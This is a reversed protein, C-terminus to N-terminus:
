LHYSSCFLHTKLSTKFNSLTKSHRVYSPLSNWLSPAYVSFSRDGFTAKRTRPVTFIRTDQSSRLTRTPKSLHLLESLYIPFHPETISKFCLTAIKYQIRAHIPLWHLKQLLPQVHDSKKARFIIRAASNQIKQLRDIQVKPINSLLSNCYDLKSLVLSHVLTKTSDITLLHRISAIRRLEINASRCINTIHKDMSLTDTMTVGLNRAQSSFSVDSQGVCISSPTTDPINQRNSHIFLVETKDDNLRLKNSTMWAKIDSICDQMNHINEQLSNLSCSNQLQTDDAFSQSSISHNLTVSSIPKTYLLFLVPGLVSGQPVGFELVSSQFSYKNTTVTQIRNSLYSSIWSLVTDSVGFSYSLRKLLIQHDITDFAASLDLLTLLSINGSDLSLLLDNTIKLLATETSHSSRYASQSSPFLNNEHLYESLQSLVLKETLKSLFSLNSM